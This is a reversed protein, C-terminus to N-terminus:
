ATTISSNAGGASITIAKKSHKNVTGFMKTGAVHLVSKLVDTYRNLSLGSVVDYSFEQYYDSDQIKKESSLHSHRTKWYGSGLGHYTVNASGAVSFPATPLTMVVDGDHVYGYGSDLVEVDTVIGNAAIVDADINANDGMIQRDFSDDSSLQIINTVNATAGYSGGVIENGLNFAVNFSTREVLLESSNASLVVGKGIETNSVNQNIVEGVAFSGVVNDISVIYNGRNFSAIYRNFVSVFPDQTYNEGPNIRTISAITGITMAVNTLCNSVITTVDGDPDAPFGYGYDMSPEVNAVDGATAPLVIEPAQYYGSGPVTVTIATITGSGDTTITGNAVQYPNGGAYGGGTFSVVGGNSYLTGGDNVTVSDVFGIGSNSGDIGIESYPIGNINTGTVLDSNVSVSEDNTLSGIDFDANVGFAISDADATYEIIAGNADRPASILQGRDTVIPCSFDTSYYIPYNNGHVGVATTNQGIVMAQFWTNAVTDVVANTSVNGSLLVDSVGTDNVASIEAELYTKSGLVARGVNFVGAVDDIVVTNADSMSTVRATAGTTTVLQSDVTATAGSTVGELDDTNNFTGWAPELTLVTSNVSTVTGYNRATTYVTNGVLTTELQEVIEGNSFPGGVVSSINLTYAGGEVLRENAAFSVATTLDISAQNAFTGTTTIVKVIGNASNASLISGNADTNAVYVITGNAIANNSSDVGVLYDGTNASLIDSGSLVNVTEVKQIVNEWRLFGESANNTNIVVDSIYVDTYSDTTYGTGGDVIEFDVRGTADEVGAVRVRGQVGDDSTVDFVDGVAFDRGGNTIVIDTLSGIVAPAGALIGDETVTEGRTFRGIIGSMYIVDILKGNTRKTVIGEVFGTAGSDTGRILKNLFSSSRDNTTVEIYEPRYWKSASPKLIDTSPSYVHSDENFLLRILLQISRESGKSRYLDMIHKIVFRKDTTAVFPFNALYKNKFHVVFDDITSDIDQNTILTRVVETANNSQELFEYYARVFAILQPAEKRYVAPFQREILQSITAIESAM